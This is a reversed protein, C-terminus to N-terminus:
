GRSSTTLLSLRARVAERDSEIQHQWVRIVTWGARRLRAHNRMDRRRNAEIKAEWKESLKHRWTSFRWGHWFDGDVFIAVRRGRLVFDPRGPLDRAQQEADLGAAALLEAIVREPGTDSGRIRSMVRSRTARDM